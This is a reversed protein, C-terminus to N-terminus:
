TVMEVAKQRTAPQYIYSDSAFVLHAAFATRALSHRRATRRQEKTLQKNGYRALRSESLPAIIATRALALVPRGCHDSYRKAIIDAAAFNIEYQDPLFGKAVRKLERKASDFEGSSERFATSSDADELAKALLLRGNMSHTAATERGIAVRRATETSNWSLLHQSLVQRSTDNALADELYPHYSPVTDALERLLASIQPDQIHRGAEWLHVLSDRISEGWNDDKLRWRAKAMDRAVQSKLLPDTIGRYAWTLLDLAQQPSSGELIAKKHLENYVKRSGKDGPTEM